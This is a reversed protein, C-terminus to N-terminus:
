VRERCSARGIELVATNEDTLGQIFKSIKLRQKIDLYSTPEDFMYLNAKKLVTAAIAVRQLEGGSINKIDNDLINEIELVKSIEEIRKKEDVKRLLSIVKGDFQRPIVDVEQPKYAVKIDGRKLRAFFVQAETGKFREILEDYSAEKGIEGLNPKLIGALIKLSTSKGIGNRGIIGIVKGFMPIPLSFLEFGNVGHRHIPLNKLAEPLNIIQICGTPCKHVCIGCGICLREAIVAKNNEGATVCDSGQRNVPCVHACILNCGRGNICKQKEIIAIRSM